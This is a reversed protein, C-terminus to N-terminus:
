ARLSAPRLWNQPRECPAPLLKPIRFDPFCGRRDHPHLNENNCSSGAIGPKLTGGFDQYVLGMTPSVLSDEVFTATADTLTCTAFQPEFIDDRAAVVLWGVLAGLILGIIVGIITGIPPALASGTSAGIAAGISAGALSGLQQLIYVVGAKVAEYLDVLFDGFKGADKEALAIYVAFSKPYDGELAFDALEELPDYNKVDGDNFSGVKFEKTKKVIGKDDNSVVGMAIEDKGM